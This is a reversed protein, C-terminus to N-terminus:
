ALRTRAQLWATAEEISEFVETDKPLYSKSMLEYMRALGFTAPTDAVIALGSVVPPKPQGGGSLMLGLGTLGSPTMANSTVGRLDALDHALPVFDPQMVLRQYAEILVQDDIIGAYVATRIGTDHNYSFQITGSSM